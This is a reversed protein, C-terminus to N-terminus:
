IGRLPRPLIKHIASVLMSRFSGVKTLYRLYNFRNKLSPVSSSVKDIVRGNIEKLLAHTIFHDGRVACALISVLNKANRPDLAVVVHNKRTKQDVVIEIVEHEKGANAFHNPGLGRRDGAM